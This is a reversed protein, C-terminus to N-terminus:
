RGRRRSAMVLAAAAFVWAPQPARSPTTRCGEAGASVDSASRASVDDSFRHNLVDEECGVGNCSEDDSPVCVTGDCLQGFPCGLSECTAASLGNVCVYGLELAPDYFCEETVLPCAEGREDAEGDADNDFGDCQEPGCETLDLDTTETMVEVTACAGELSIGVDVGRFELPNAWCLTFTETTGVAIPRDLEVPASLESRTGADESFMAIVAIEPIEVFGINEITLQVASCRPEDGEVLDCAAYDFTPDGSWVEVLSVAVAGGTEDVLGDCDEDDGNGCIEELTSPLATADCEATGEEACVTAGAVACVGLGSFCPDGVGFGNTLEGDCDHDLEDCREASPPFAEGACGLTTDEGCFTIGPVACEGLGATCAGGVVFGNMPGDICDHDIEDCREPEPVPADCGLWLGDSCVEVELGCASSCGRSLSEDIPGDCDDDLGNCLEAAAPLGEASCAAVVQDASCVIVGAETCEGVGSLCADDLTPYSEDVAGSCDNDLGDCLEYNIMLGPVGPSYLTAVDGVSLSFDLVTVDDLWGTLSGSIAGDGDVSAGFVFDGVWAPAPLASVDAGIVATEGVLIAAEAGDVFVRVQSGDHSVAVHTWAGSDLADDLAAVSWAQGAWTLAGDAALEFPNEERNWRSVLTGSEASSAVRVWFSVGFLYRGGGSARVAEGEGAFVAAVRGEVLATTTNHSACAGGTLNLFCDDSAERDLDLIVDAGAGCESVSGDAACVVRSDFCADADTGECGGFTFVSDIAGDCDNDRGDCLSANRDLTPITVALDGIASADLAYGYVVVDDIEGQYAATADLSCGDPCGERATGDATLRQGIFLDSTVTNMPTETVAYPGSVQAGDHYVRVFGAEHTLAVHTWRGMDLAPGREYAVGNISLWESTGLLLVDSVAGGGASFFARPEESAPRLWAAITYADSAALAAVPVRMLSDGGPMTLARPSSPGDAVGLAGGSLTADIGPGSSDQSPEPGGFEYIAAAGACLATGDSCVTVGDLCLDDDAGDCAVGLGLGDDVAGDCDDDLWNCREDAGLFRTPDDPACDGLCEWQGDSDHDIESDALAGDCDDDVGNCPDETDAPAAPQCLTTGSDPATSVWLDTVPCQGTASQDVCAASGVRDRSLFRLVFGADGGVNGNQVLVVNEGASLRVDPVIVQDDIFCTCSIGAHVLEGNVWIRVNDDYGVSLDVTREVPSHVYTAAYYYRFTSGGSFLRSLALGFGGNCLGPIALGRQESWTRGSTDEGASPRIDPPITDIPPYASCADESAVVWLIRGYVLWSDIWGDGHTLDSLPRGIPEAPACEVRGDACAGLADAACEDGEGPLPGDDVSGNCDNDIGDCVEAAGPVVAATSDACDTGDTVWGAGPHACADFTEAASGFADGDSDRFYSVFPLDEDALGDCDDDSDNCLEIEDDTEDTCITALGDTSCIVEGEVCAGADAGDCPAGLEGTLGQPDVYSFTEDISVNCNNDVGDCLEHNDGREAAGSVPSGLDEALRGIEVVSLEFEFLAVEDVLGDFHSDAETGGVVLDSAEAAILGGLPEPGATLVGDAYLRLGGDRGYTCAVHSWEDTPLVATGIEADGFETSLGCRLIGDATVSLGFSGAKEVITSREGDEAFGSANVWAAITVAHGDVRTLASDLIRGFEGDARPRLAAGRYGAALEVGSILELNGSEGFASGALNFVTGDRVSEFDVSVRAGGLACRTSQRDLACRQVDDDCGDLDGGDCAVGTTFGDDVVGDCDNDVGDCIEVIRHRAPVAGELGLSEVVPQGVSGALLVLEDIRGAFAEAVGGTWLRAGVVPYGWADVDEVLTAGQWAGDLFLQAYGFRDITVGVHTWTGLTIPASSTVTHDVGDNVVLGVRGDAEYRVAWRVCCGEIGGLGSSSVLYGTAGVSAPSVWFSLTLDSGAWTGFESGIAYDDLGDFSLAAGDVGAAFSAGNRLTLSRGAVSGDHVTDGALEDFDYSALVGLSCETSIGDDACVVTGSLCATLDAASDCTDGLGEFGNDITGDCDNDRSDCIELADPSIADDGDDCDLTTPEALALGESRPCSLDTSEVTRESRWGDRDADEYCLELGDCDSDVGDGVGEEQAPNTFPDRDDCDGVRAARYFGDPACMCRGSGPVGWDDGDQDFWYNICGSAGEDDVVGNCNNDVGDCTEVRAPSVRTRMLSADERGAEYFWGDFEFGTMTM